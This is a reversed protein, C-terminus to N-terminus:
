QKEGNPKTAAAEALYDDTTRVKPREGLRMPSHESHYQAKVRCDDCMQILRTNDSNTFMWHKGQLKDVIKEITSKVGFLKGCEICAFPEEEKLVRPALVADSLDLRPELRIADEPCVNACLGCQICAEERFSLEPRDENDLLAGTPCLGACSLCLTCADQNVLVAGYPAGKPLPVPADPLQGGALAKAALRVSERRGGAALIPEVALATPRDGYLLDSMQDPDSPDIVRLRGADVGAGEAIADALAMQAEIVSRETKPGALVIVEAYGMALAVLQEAHGIATLSTTELPIVDGPLGRGFRAALRIMEAGHEADHILLRPSAGGAATYAEAMVRMKRFLFQVPPDDTSAAGSPCVAHCAGCGACVMPDIVVTEEGPAIAGTPCVDLCRTCGIKRARSHACLSDDFRIFLEREFSGQLHSAEFIAREVALPDGPDARLYGDRKHHAPVLPQGGSLDVFVDCESRAGDKPAEFTLAGRGAASLEAFRDATLTFQGLAGSLNRIRGTVVDVDTGAELVDEPETLMVTVTLTEALRRAAPLAVDASGYVLCLGDSSVDMLPVPPRALREGAILAAQKPGSREDSWGARDRIDICSLRDPAGLEDAIESFFGAMQGCAVIVDDGSSLAAVASEAEPGCLHSHIRSTAVDCASAIADADPKFTGTCDCLLIRPKTGAM